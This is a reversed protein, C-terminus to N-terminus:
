AEDGEITEDVFSVPSMPIDEKTEARNHLRLIGAIRIFGIVFAAGFFGVNVWNLIAVTRRDIGYPLSESPIRQVERQIYLAMVIWWLTGVASYGLDCILGIGCFDCTILQLLGIGASVAISVAAGIVSYRCNTLNSPDEDLFCATSSHLNNTVLWLIAAAVIIQCVSLVFYSISWSLGYGPTKKVDAVSKRILGMRGVQVVLICNGFSENLETASNSVNCQM